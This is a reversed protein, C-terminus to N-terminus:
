ESGYQKLILQINSLFSPSDCAESAIKFVYSAPLDMLQGMLYVGHRELIIVTDKEVGKIEDIPTNRTISSM